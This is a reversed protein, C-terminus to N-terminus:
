WWDFRPWPHTSSSCLLLASAHRGVRCQVLSLLQTRVSLAEAHMGMRPQWMPHELEAVTLSTSVHCQFVFGKDLSEHERYVFRLSLLIHPSVQCCHACGERTIQQQLRGRWSPM